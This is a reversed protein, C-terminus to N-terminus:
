SQMASKEAALFDATRTAAAEDVPVCFANFDTVGIEKLHQIQQRLEAEDGLMALDAPQAGGEKEMDLMRRYSPLLGYIEMKKM